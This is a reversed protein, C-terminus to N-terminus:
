ATVWKRATELDGAPFHKVEASVFHSAIKEAVDGILSDTVLAVKGISAHHDRVFRFHQILAALSEWGPFSESEILLGTLKGKEEIFPDVTKALESFDEKGLPGSPHVHLVANEKDLDYTIM